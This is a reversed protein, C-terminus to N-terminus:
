PVDRRGMGLVRSPDEIGGGSRLVVVHWGSATRRLIPRALPDEGSVMLEAARWCALDECDGYGRSLVEPATLWEERVERPERRYRVGARYLQPLRGSRVADADLECLSRLLRELGREGAVPAVIKVRM